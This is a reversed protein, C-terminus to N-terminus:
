GAQLFSLYFGRYIEYMDLWERNNVYEKCIQVSTYAIWTAPRLDVNRHANICVCSIHTCRLTYM